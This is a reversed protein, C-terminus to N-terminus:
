DKLFRTAPDVSNKQVLLAGTEKFLVRLASMDLPAIDDSYKKLASGILEFDLQTSCKLIRQGWIKYMATTHAPAVLDKDAKADLEDLFKELDVDVQAPELAQEDVKKDFDFDSTVEAEVEVVNEIPKTEEAKKRSRKSKVVEQQVIPTTQPAVSHIEEYEETTGFGALIDPFAEDCCWSVARKLLMRKWYGVWANTRGKWVRVKKGTGDDVMECAMLGATMADYATYTIVVDSHGARKATVKWQPVGNPESYESSIDGYAMCLAKKASTSLTANGNVVAINQLAQLPKMGLEAGRACAIYVDNAKSADAPAGKPTQYAKPVLGSRSVFDSWSKADEFTKPTYSFGSAVLANNGETAVLANSNDLIEESM